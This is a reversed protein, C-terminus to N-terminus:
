RFSYDGNSVRKPYKNLDIDYENILLFVQLKDKNVIIKELFEEVLEKNFEKFEVKESLIEYLKKLKTKKNELILNRNELQQLSLNLESETKTLEENKANFDEKSLNSEEDVYLDLLKTKKNQVQLLQKKINDMEKEVNSDKVTKNLTNIFNEVLTQKTNDSVLERFIDMLIRKLLDERIYSGNKCVKKGNDNYATCLWVPRDSGDKNKYVKRRFKVGCCGCILKGGWVHKTYGIGEERFKKRRKKLELQANNWVERDIIAPHNDRIIIFNEKEKNKSQKHTLYDDTCYKGQKLDGCYKENELISRVSSHNFKGGLRGRIGKDNLKKAIAHLSDGKLYRSYIDKVIQAEEENIELTKDVLNYGLIRDAGFVVGNKMARKHGWKVRQSTKRSEEQALTAMISLRLEGDNDLTNIGDSEFYVGVKKKKLHRTYKLVDVINRGLRSVEKTLIFDFKGQEADQIMRNFGARKITSTGSVGEDVYLGCFELDPQNNIYEEWHQKQNELSNIQDDHDTSVRCYAVARKKM